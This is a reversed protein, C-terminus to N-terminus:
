MFFERVFFKGFEEGIIGGGSYYYFGIGVGMKYGMFNLLEIVLNFKNGGLKDM